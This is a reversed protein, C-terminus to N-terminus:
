KEDLNRALFGKLKTIRGEVFALEKVIDNVDLGYDPKPESVRNESDDENFIYNLDIWCSFLFNILM